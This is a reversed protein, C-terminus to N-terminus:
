SVHTLLKVLLAMLWGLASGVLVAGLLQWVMNRKM